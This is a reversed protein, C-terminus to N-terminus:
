EHAPKGISFRSVRYAFWDRAHYRISQKLLRGAQELFVFFAGSSIRPDVSSDNPVVCGQGSGKRGSPGSRPEADFQHTTLCLREWSARDLEDLLAKAEKLDATDFGEATRM